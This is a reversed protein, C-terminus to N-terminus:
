QAYKTVLMATKVREKSAAVKTAQQYVKFVTQVSCQDESRFEFQKSVRITTRFSKKQFVHNQFGCVVVFANFIVWCAFPSHALAKNRIFIKTGEIKKSM